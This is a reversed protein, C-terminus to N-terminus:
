IPSPPWRWAGAVTVDLFLGPVWKVASHKHGVAPRSPHLFDRRCRSDIGPCDLGYPTAISVAIGRSKRIGLLPYICLQLVNSLFNLQSPPLHLSIASSQTCNGAKTNATDTLDYVFSIRLCLCMSTVTSWTCHRAKTNTWEDPEAIASLEFKHLYTRILPPRNSTIWSHVFVSDAGSDSNGFCILFWAFSKWM